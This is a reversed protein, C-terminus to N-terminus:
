SRRRHQGVVDVDQDTWCLYVADRVRGDAVASFDAARLYTVTEGLLERALKAM